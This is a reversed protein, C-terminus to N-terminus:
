ALSGLSRRRKNSHRMAASLEARTPPRTPELATAAGLVMVAPALTLLLPSKFRSCGCSTSGGTVLASQYVNATQGCRCVCRWRAQRGYDRAAAAVVVWAGFQRGIM